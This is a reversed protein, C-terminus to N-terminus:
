EEKEKPPWFGTAVKSHLFGKEKLDTHFHTELPIYINPNKLLKKKDERSDLYRLVLQGNEYDAGDESFDHFKVISIYHGIEHGFTSTYCLNALFSTEDMMMKKNYKERSMLKIKFDSFKVTPWERYNYVIRGIANGDEFASDDIEVPIKSSECFKVFFDYLDYRFFRIAEKQSKDWKRDQLKDSIGILALAALGLVILVILTFFIFYLIVEETGIDMKM